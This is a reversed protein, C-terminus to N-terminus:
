ANLKKQAQLIYLVAAGLPTLCVSMLLIATNSIQSAFHFYYVSPVFLSAIRVSVIYIGLFFDYMALPYVIKKWSKFWIGAGIILQLPNLWLLIGNPSTAEHESFFVLFVIVCGALGAIIFYASIWIKSLFKFRGTGCRYAMIVCVALSIILMLLGIFSPTLCWPTPPLTADEYGHFIVNTEKVLPKDGVTAQAAKEALVPPAFIDEDNQLYQDIGRGLALDIGFQYWPYNRHFHRMEQRFTKYYLTDPMTIVGRPNEITLVKTSDVDNGLAIAEKIREWPRTACNDKVYNYRYIRNQPLSEIQLLKRLNQAEQQTLDLVQETVRSGRHVYAPMFRGFPYGRVMYDTQGKCFRYIFNPTDFDFIGYNWVSDMKENRIRLAAHGCLEYVDPGPACTVLSVVLPGGDYDCLSLSDARERATVGCSLYLIFVFIAFLKQM